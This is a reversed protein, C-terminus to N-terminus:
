ALQTLLWVFPTPGTSHLCVLSLPIPCFSESYISKVRFEPYFHLDVGKSDALIRCYGSGGQTSIWIFPLLRNKSGTLRFLLPRNLSGLPELGVVSWMPNIICIEVGGGM